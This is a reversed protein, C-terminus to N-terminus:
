PKEFSMPGIVITQQDIFTENTSVLNAEVTLYLYRKAAKVVSKSGEFVYDKQEVSARVSINTLRPEFSKLREQFGIILDSLWAKETHSTDFDNMWVDSGFTPDFRCDNYSSSLLLRICNKISTVQDVRSSQGGQIWRSVELPLGLYKKM